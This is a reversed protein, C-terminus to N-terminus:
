SKRFSNAFPLTEQHSSQNQLSLFKLPSTEDITMMKLAKEVMTSQNKWPAPRVERQIGAMKELKEFNKWYSLTM